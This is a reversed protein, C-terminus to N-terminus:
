IFQLKGIKRMYCIKSRIVNETRNLKESCYVCGKSKYNEILFNVDEETWINLQKQIDCNRIELYKEYKRELKDISNNYLYEGVKIIDWKNCIGIISSKGNKREYKNIKYHNIKLSDFLNTVFSWDQELSSTINFKPTKYKGNQICYLSFSGDGDIYGRYFDRHYEEPIKNLIKTPQISSKINFDNNTLFTHTEKCTFYISSSKYIKGTQKSKRERHYEKWEGSKCFINYLNIFDSSKITIEIRYGKDKNRIYGDAWLFGLIYSKNNDIEQFLNNKM